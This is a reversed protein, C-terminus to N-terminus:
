PPCSLSSVAMAATLVGVVEGEEGLGRAEPMSKMAEEWSKTKTVAACEKAPLVELLVEGGIRTRGAEERATAIM